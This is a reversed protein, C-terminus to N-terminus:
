KVKLDEKSNTIPKFFKKSDENCKVSAQHEEIDISTNNENSCQFIVQAYTEVIWKRAKNKMKPNFFVKLKDM